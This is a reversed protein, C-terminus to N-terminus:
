ERNPISSKRPSPITEKELGLKRVLIETRDMETQLYKSYDETNMYTINMDFKDMASQFRPDAMGKKLADHLKKLIPAPLGKPGVIGTTAGGVMDIGVESLTPVNPYRKARKSGYTALLRFKGADVLPAWGSSGSVIDIHGGLLAANYEADGKYPVHVWRIGGATMALEETVLHATSGLGASGYTLKGPNAKSYAILEQITKWPADSRVVLGYLYSAYHIIPTVEQVPNFNLKGMHYGILLTPAQLTITYGDAPKSIAYAAGVTGGGGPKNECIIPQGLYEQAASALARIPLDVAGGPPYPIVFTIPRIPFDAALASTGFQIAL